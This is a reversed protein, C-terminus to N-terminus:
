PINTKSPSVRRYRAACMSSIGPVFRQSASTCPHVQPLVHQLRRPGTALKQIESRASKRLFAILLVRLQDQRVQCASEPQQQRRLLPDCPHGRQLGHQALTDRLRPRGALFRSPEVRESIHHQRGIAERPKLSHPPPLLLDVAKRERLCVFDGHRQLQGHPFNRVPLLDQRRLAVARLIGVSSLAEFEHHRSEGRVGSDPRLRELAQPLDLVPAALRPDEFQRMVQIVRSRSACASRNTAGLRSSSGSIWRVPSM